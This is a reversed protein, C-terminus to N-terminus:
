DTLVNFYAQPCGRCGGPSAGGRQAQERERGRQALAAASPRSHESPRSADVQQQRAPRSASRGSPRRMATAQQQRAAMGPRCARARVGAAAAPGSSRQAASTGSPWAGGSSGPRARASERAPGSGNNPWATIANKLKWYFLFHKNLLSKLQVKIFRLLNHLHGFITFSLKNPECYHWRDILTTLECNATIIIPEYLRILFSLM